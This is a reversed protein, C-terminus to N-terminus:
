SNPIVFEEKHGFAQTNDIWRVWRPTIKYLEVVGLQKHLQGLAAVNPLWQGVFAYKAIYLQYGRARDALDDVREAEGSIQVGRIDQWGQSQGHITASVRPERTLNQIHLTKPDSLFYFTLDDSHAYFVDCAQPTGDANQTALTLTNQQRLFELLTTQM